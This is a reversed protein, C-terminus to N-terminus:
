YPLSIETKCGKGPASIIKIDGNFSEIRSMINAIGIGKRNQTVDFGKGNDKIQLQIMRGAAKLFISVKTAGAHKIINNGQEQVIRYINLKLEDDTIEPAAEYKLIAKIGTTVNMNDVIKQLLQRLNVNKQPTVNKSSLLRIESIATDILEMPYRILEKMEPEKAAMGLYLRTGALIQNINDHLEQGLYDREKEQTKLIARIIKRQEQNKQDLIEQELLKKATIDNRIALYQVPKGKNNLFPVITADVWYLSGDKAKNRFEGRWIKGKAITAWLEKIFAKTHYGSNIIRHDQGLLEDETYGSIKFFNENAYTIRGKQDTISLIASQDLANKYDAIEKEAAKRDTIDMSVAIIGTIAGRENYVPSQTVFAPFTSGDKRQILQEESWIETENLREKTKLPQDKLEFSPTLETLNKGLAESEKWGYIKEATNNWYTIICNTDTAIVAQGVAKLLDADLRTKDEANKAETIDHLIGFLRVTNGKGDYEYKWRSYINRESGDKRMIRFNFYSLINKKILGKLKEQVYESDERHLASIFLEKSPITEKQDWGFINYFENSWSHIGKVLDVDWAAVHAMAQAENLLEGSRRLEREAKKKETIDRAYGRIIPEDGEKIKLSNNYEWIRVEGSSTIIKMEGKAFGDEKIAAIYHEFEAKANPALLDKINFHTQEAVHYGTLKEAASNASLVYGEQDHTCILDTINDVLDRYQEESKLINEADKMRRSIDRSFCATGIINDGERIPYFSIESWFEFPYVFHEITTFTEGSLARRYLEKYKKNLAVDFMESLVYDGPGLIADSTLKVVTKFADNCTILNLSTDVSWMLDHTNDILARMNNSDFEKQKEDKIRQSIDRAITAHYQPEGSPTKLVVVVASIPIEKGTTTLLAAEGSWKGEKITQPIVKEQIIKKSWEPVVDSIYPLPQFESFGIMERGAKNMFIIRENLSAMAVFDSTAEIVASLRSREEETKKQETFDLMVGEILEEGTHPDKILAINEIIYVPHGDKHKLIVEYNTLQKDRKLEWIFRDRDGKNYYLESSKNRRLDAMSDYGLMQVFAKNCNIIRGDLSTQYVGALNREFLNRYKLESAVLNQQAEEIDRGINRKKIAADIAAPLRSMRDKLIYDDAGAKLVEVTFEESLGGTVLIFPIEKIKQRALLLASISDFQPLSNDSLIIDPRFENISHIYHDKDMALDFEYNPNEKHLLRKIITAEDPNDELLLIKIHKHV